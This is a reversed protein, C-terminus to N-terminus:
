FTVPTVWYGFDGYKLPTTKTTKFEAFGFKEAIQKETSSYIGPVGLQYFVDFDEVEGAENSDSAEAAIVPSGTLWKALILHRYSDYGHLLFSNKRLGAYETSFHDIYAPDILLYNSITSLFTPTPPAVSDLIPDKEIELVQLKPSSTEAPSFAAPVIPNDDWETGLLRNPSIPIIIGGMMSFPLDTDLVKDSSIVTQCDGVSNKVSLPCLPLGLINGDKRYFLYTQLTITSLSLLKIHITIKCQGNRSEIRTYGINNKKRENEYTYLYSVFRKYDSM